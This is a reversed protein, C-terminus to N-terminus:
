EFNNEFSADVALKKPIQNIQDKLWSELMQIPHRVIFLSKNHPYFYNFSTREYYNPNHLHYFITKDENEQYKIQSM